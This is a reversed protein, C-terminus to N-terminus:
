LGVAERVDFALPSPDFANTVELAEEYYREEAIEDLPEGKLFAKVKSAYIRGCITSEPGPGFCIDPAAIRGLSLLVCGRQGSPTVLNGTRDRPLDALQQRLEVPLDAFYAFM